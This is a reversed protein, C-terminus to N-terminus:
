LKLPTWVGVNTFPILMTLYLFPFVTFTIFFYSVWLSCYWLYQERKREGRGSFLFPADVGERQEPQM